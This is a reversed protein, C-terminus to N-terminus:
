IHFERLRSGSNGSHNVNDNGLMCPILIPTHLYSKARSDNYNNVYFRDTVQETDSTGAEYWELTICAIIYILHLEWVQYM